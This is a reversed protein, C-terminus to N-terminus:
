SVELRVIPIRTASPQIEDGAAPKSPDSKAHVSTSSTFCDNILTLTFDKISVNIDQEPFLKIPAESIPLDTSGYRQEAVPLPATAPASIAVKFDETEKEKQEEEEKM